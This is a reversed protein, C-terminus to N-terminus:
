LHFKPHFYVDYSSRDKKWIVDWTEEPRFSRRDALFWQEQGRSDCAKVLTAIAGGDDVTVLEQPRAGRLALDGAAAHHVIRKLYGAIFICYLMALIAVFGWIGEPSHAEKVYHLAPNNRRYVVTISSDPDEMFVSDSYTRGDVTYSYYLQYRREPRCADQSGTRGSGGRCVTGQVEYRGTLLGPMQETGNVSNMLFDGAFFCAVATCVLLFVAVPLLMSPQYGVHLLNDNVTIGQQRLSQLTVAEKPM